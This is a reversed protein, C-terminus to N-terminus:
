RKKSSSIIKSIILTISKLEIEMEIPPYPYHVSAKCLKIWYNTEDAEKAAIKLKHIFDSNSEANQAEWVNAGISPGSKFLQSAMEYKHLSRLKKPTILPKFPLILLKILLLIKGIM